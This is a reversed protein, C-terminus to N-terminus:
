RSLPIALTKRVRIAPHRVSIPKKSIMADYLGQKTLFLLTPPSFFFRYRYPTTHQVLMHPFLVLFNKRIQCSNSM